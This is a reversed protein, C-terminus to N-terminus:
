YFYNFYHASSSPGLICHTRTLQLLQFQKLVGFECSSRYVTEQPLYNLSECHCVEQGCRLLWILSLGLGEEPVVSSVDDDYDDSDINVTSLFECPFAQENLMDPDAALSPTPNESSM